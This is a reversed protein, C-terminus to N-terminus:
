KLINNVEKVCDLVNIAGSSDIDAATSSCGDVPKNVIFGAIGRVDDEDIAGDANVDGPANPIISFKSIYKSVGFSQKMPDIFNVNRFEAFYDGPKADYPVEIVLSAVWGESGVFANGTRSSAVIRVTGDELVNYRISIDTGAIREENLRIADTANALRFGEPLVIDAQWLSVPGVNNMEVQLAMKHGAHGSSEKSVFLGYDAQEAITNVSGFQKWGTASRYAEEAGKPVFLTCNSFPTYHEPNYGFEFGNSFIPVSVEPSGLTVCSLNRCHRFVSNPLETIKGLINVYKLSTCYEFMDTGLSYVSQPITISTLSKCGTFAFNGIVQLSEPLTISSLSSCGEFVSPGIGVLSEPLSMSKLKKCNYFAQSGIATVGHMSVSELNVCDQFANFSIGKVSAPIDISTLGTCGNFANVDILEVGNPIVTNKCGCVLVNAPTVVIANCNNRSDFYRNGSELVISELGSCGVFPNDQIDYLTRPIYLSKLGSCYAFAFNELTIVSSPFAISALGECKNFAWSAITRVSSPIDISRLSKCGSFVYGGITTIRNPLKVSELEACGEFAYNGLSTVSNPLVISKLNVCSQFAYNGISSVGEEVRISNISNKHAFANFSISNVKYAVGDHVVSSPVVVDTEDGYYDIVDVTNLSGNSVYSLGFVANTNEEEPITFIIDKVYGCDDGVSKSSDKSYRFALKDGAKVYCTVGKYQSEGAIESYKSGNCSFGFWDHSEESSVKWKFSCCVDIDSNNIFTIVSSSYDKHVNSTLLGDESIFWDNSNYKVSITVGDPSVFFDEIGAAYANHSSCLLLTLISLFCIIEKKM